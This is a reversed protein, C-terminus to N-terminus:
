AAFNSMLAPDGLPLVSMAGILGAVDVTALGIILATLIVAFFQGLVVLIDDVPIPAEAGFQLENSM